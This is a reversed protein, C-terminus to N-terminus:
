AADGGTGQRTAMRIWVAREIAVGEIVAQDESLGQRMRREVINLVERRLLFAAREPPHKVLRGALKNVLGRNRTLPFPLITAPDSKPQGLQSNAWAFHDDTM